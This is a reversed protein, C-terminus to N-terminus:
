LEVLEILGIVPSFLFCVPHGNLAPAALPKSIPKFGQKKLREIDASMDETEYCIHYPSSGKKRLVDNVPSMEDLPAVLEVVHDGSRLFQIRVHRVADCTVGGEVAYGLTEFQAAANELSSVAYGIHSIKM